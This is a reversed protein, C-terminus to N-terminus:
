VGMIKSIKAIMENWEEASPPPLPLANMLIRLDSAAQDESVHLTRFTHTLGVSATGKRVSWVADGRSNHDKDEYGWPVVRDVPKVNVKYQLAITWRHKHKYPGELNHCVGDLPYACHFIEVWRDYDDSATVKYFLLGGILKGSRGMRDDELREVAEKISVDGVLKDWRNTFRVEQYSEVFRHRDNM